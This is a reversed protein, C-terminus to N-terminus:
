VDDRNARAVRYGARELLAPLGADGLLHGLGVAVLGGGADLLHEIQPLWRRNRGALV